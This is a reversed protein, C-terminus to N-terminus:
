PSLPGAFLDPEQAAAEGAALQYGALLGFLLADETAVDGPEGGGSRRAVRPALYSALASLRAIEAITLSRSRTAHDLSMVAGTHLAEVDDASLTALHRKLAAQWPLLPGDSGGEDARGGDSGERRTDSM